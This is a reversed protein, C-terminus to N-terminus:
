IIKLNFPQDFFELDHNETLNHDKLSYKKALLPTVMQSKKTKKSTNESNSLQNPMTKSNLPGGKSGRLNYNEPLKARKSPDNKGSDAFLVIM